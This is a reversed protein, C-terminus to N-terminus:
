FNRFSTPSTEIDLMELFKIINDTQRLQEEQMKELFKIKEQNLNIARETEIKFHEIEGYKQFAMLIVGTISVISLIITLYDKTKAIGEKTM